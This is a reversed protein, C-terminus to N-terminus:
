FIQCIMVSGGGILVNSVNNVSFNAVNKIFSIFNKIFDPTNQNNKVNELFNNVVEITQKMHESCYYRFKLYQVYIIIFFFSNMAFFLGYILTFFAYFECNSSFQILKQRKEWIKLIIKHKYVIKIIKLLYLFERIIFIVALFINKSGDIMIILSLIILSFDYNKTIKLLYEKTLKIMGEKEICKLIFYVFCFFYFAKLYFFILLYNYFIFLLELGNKGILEKFNFSIKTQNPIFNMDFNNDIKNKYFEKKFYEIQNEAPQPYIRKLYDKWLQSEEFNYNLYNNYSESM